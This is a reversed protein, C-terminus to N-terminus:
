FLPDYALASWSLYACVYRLCDTIKSARSRSLGEVGRLGDWVLDLFNLFLLLCLM